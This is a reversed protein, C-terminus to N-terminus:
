LGAALFPAAILLLVVVSALLSRVRGPRSPGGPGTPQPPPPAPQPTGPPHTM